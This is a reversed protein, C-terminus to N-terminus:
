APKSGASELRKVASARDDAFILTPSELKFLKLVQLIQPRISHLAIRGGGGNKVERHTRNLWGIGASGMFEVGSFDLMLPAAKWDSGLVTALPNPLGEAPVDESNIKGEHAVELFGAESPLKKLTMLRWARESLIIPFGIVLCVCRDNRRDDGARAFNYRNFVIAGFRQMFLDVGRMSPNGPVARNRSHCM